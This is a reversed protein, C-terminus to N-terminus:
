NRAQSIADLEAASLIEYGDERIDTAADLPIGQPRRQRRQRAPPAGALDLAVDTEQLEPEPAPPAAETLVPAPPTRSPARILPALFSAFGLAISTVVLAGFRRAFYAWWSGRKRRPKRYSIVDTAM